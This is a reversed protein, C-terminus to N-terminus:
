DGFANSSAGVDAAQGNLLEDKPVEDFYYKMVNDVFDCANSSGYGYAIRTAIAIQPSDAPAYGVFLAHNPREENEQATGTKGALKVNLDDFQDHEGIALEMGEHIVQWVSSSLETIENRVSPQYEQITNGSSDTVKDLLTLDYVTGSNALSAAYRCLQSTTYANNSQGISADIPYENAINSSSESIEINTKDGLGFLEAYKNLAALGKKEDYTDGNMSLRYGVESFFTNCSDRIAQTVNIKGHNSPYVWCHLDRGLKTFAGDDQIITEPTIVGETLGAATTVMKFTSGPATTQQTANNYLPLSGDQLLQNYYASDMTNALRNTDYGPYTVSALLEGTNPDMIVCSGTCPDLALQAPTIELSKIKNKLFTYASTTGNVLKSVTEEDQQLVGQEYLILCLQTGTIRDDYILYKYVIKDFANDTKLQEMVYSVLVNYIEGTDAYKENLEFATIDIWSSDIAHRLYEQVSIGGNKWDQYVSDSSDVAKADFIKKNQLMMIIYSMYEQMEDSLDNYATSSQLASEVNQLATGQQGAFVNYVNAQQTGAGASAMKKLDIISNEILANYVKYIPIYLESSDSTKANIIKTNLIGALEQELMDYIAMQLTADISLYVDNGASPEEYDKIELIKGLNNVYVTESGKNGQLQLEMVQEIGAKGIIDNLTYSDDQASLEEYEETDIKGTYGIIHSFYEPYDYVRKTDERVEVGQLEYAHEKIMAVTEDSVDEAVNTAIYKQYSNQYLGYRVIMIQYARYRDYTVTDDANIAFKNLLYEYMQEPTAQAEDYGLDPNIKLDDIKTRGYIDARFRMLKTDEVLYSLNGDTDMYLNFDNVITDGNGEIMDILIDIEENLKEAREDNRAYTGNDELTVTYSLENHALLIGNRDYINGRTGEISIEKEISLTYNNLYEEGNVIQLTFLHQIVYIFLVLMVIWFVFLRSKVIKVVLEKIRDVM